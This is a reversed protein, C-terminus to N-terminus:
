LFELFIGSCEFASLRLHIGQPVHGKEGFQLASINRDHMRRDLIARQFSALVKLIHLLFVCRQIRNKTISLYYELQLLTLKSQQLYLLYYTRKRHEEKM